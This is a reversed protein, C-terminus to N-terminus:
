QMDILPPNLEDGIADRLRKIQHLNANKRLIQIMQDLTTCVYAEGCTKRYLEAWMLAENANQALVLGDSYAASLSSMAPVIGARAANPLAAIAERRLAIDKSFQLSYAFLPVAAAVVKKSLLVRSIKIAEVNGANALARADEATPGVDKQAVGMMDLNKAAGPIPTQAARLTLEKAREVDKPVSEGHFLLSGLVLCAAPNGAEAAEELLKLGRTEDKTIGAGNIFAMAALYTASSVGRESLKLLLAVHRPTIHKQTETSLTSLLELDVVLDSLKISSQVNQVSPLPFEISPLEPQEALQHPTTGKAHPSLDKKGDTQADNRAVENRSASVGEKEPQKPQEIVPDTGKSGIEASTAAKPAEVPVNTQAPATDEPKPADAPREKGAESLAPAHFSPSMVLWAGLAIMGLAGCALLLITTFTPSRTPASAEVPLQESTRAVIAREGCAPCAASAAKDFVHGQSCRAYVPTM